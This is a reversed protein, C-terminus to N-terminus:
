VMTETERRVWGNSWSIRIDTQTLFRCILEKLPDKIDTSPYHLELTEEKVSFDNCDTYLATQSNPEWVGIEIPVPRRTAEIFYAPNEERSLLAMLEDPNSFQRSLCTVAVDKQTTLVSTLLLELYKGREDKGIMEM